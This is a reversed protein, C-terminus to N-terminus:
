VETDVVVTMDLVVAVVVQMTLLHEVLILVWVVEALGLM